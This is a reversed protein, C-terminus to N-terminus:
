MYSSVLCSFHSSELSVILFSSPIVQVLVGRAYKDLRAEGLVVDLSTSNLVDNLIRMFVLRSLSVVALFARDARM